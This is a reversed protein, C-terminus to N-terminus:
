CAQFTLNVRCSSLVPLRLRGSAETEKRSKEGGVDVEVKHGGPLGGLVISTESKLEVVFSLSDKEAVYDRIIVPADAEIITHGDRHVELKRGAKVSYKAGRIRMNRVSADEGGLNGFRMGGWPEVDILEQLGLYPLLAGWTYMPSSDEPSSAEPDCGTGRLAHYNEHVHGREQWDRRFLEVSKEAFKHAIDYFGYRKLGESVLFNLPPWILGRVWHQEKFAPDDRSISPIVYDGWFEKENLLHEKVMRQAQERSCVGAIMPYFLTPACRYSFRGDWYRNLYIGDDKSWLVENMREKIGEYEGKLREAEEVKGLSLAMRYLAWTDLAWLSNLGVDVLEMTGTETSFTVDDYLPINDLGSEFKSCQLIYDYEYRDPELNTGWELLGDRNGDRYQFWWDHWRLLVPFARHLLEDRRFTEYVKLVCYSGVPPQSRDKITQMGPLLGRETATDLVAYINQYALEEDEVGALITGLFTDWVYIVGDLIGDDEVRMPSPTYIRRRKWSWITNWNMVVPIAEVCDGWMGDGSVRESQYQNRRTSLFDEWESWKLSLDIRDKGEAEDGIRDSFIFLPAGLGLDFSVPGDGKEGDVTLVSTLGGVDSSVVALFAGSATQIVATNDRKLWREEEDPLLSLEVSLRADSLGGEPSVKCVLQDGRSAYEVSVKKGDLNFEQRCYSGDSAHAGLKMPPPEDWKTNLIGQGRLYGKRVNQVTFTTLGEICTGTDEQRFVLKVELGEPLHVMRHCYWTNWGESRIM